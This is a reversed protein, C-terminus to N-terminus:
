DHHTLIILNMGEAITKEIRAGPSDKWDPLLL